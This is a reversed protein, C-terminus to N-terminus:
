HGRPNPAAAMLANAPELFVAPISQRRFFPSNGMDTSIALHNLLPNERESSFNSSPSGDGPPEPMALEGAYAKGSIQRSKFGFQLGSSFLFNPPLSLPPSSHDRSHDVRARGERSRQLGEEVEKEEEKGDM